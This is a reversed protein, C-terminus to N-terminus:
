QRHSTKDKIECYISGIGLYQAAFMLLSLIIDGFYNIFPISIVQSEILGLIVIAVIISTYDRTYHRWGAIDICKKIAILNFAALFKGTDALRAMAIEMFFVTIYFLIAGVVVFIVTKFPNHAYLLHITGGFDFLMEELDFPPFGLPSCVLDLITGQVFLYVAMVVSSKIGFIFVDKPLVKPLRFGHNARDRTITMGYGNLLITCIILILGAGEFSLDNQYMGEIFNIVAFLILIFIFFPINYTCYDWVRKLKVLPM